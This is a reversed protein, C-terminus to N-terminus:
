SVDVEKVDDKKESVDFHESGVSIADNLPPINNDARADGPLFDEGDLEKLVLDEIDAAVPTSTLAQTPAAITDATKHHTHHEKHETPHAPHKHEAPHAHPKHDTSHKEDKEHHPAPAHAHHPSPHPAPPVAPAPVPAVEVVLHTQESAPQAPVPPQHVVPPHKLLHQQVTAKEQEVAAVMGSVKHASEVSCCISDINESVLFQLMEERQVAHGIISTKVGFKKCRRIVYSLASLVAPNMENYLSQLAPNNRDIALIHQTLDDTDFSMFTIGSTCLDNIIQVSAPTEVMIGLEVSAPMGLSHALEQTQKVEAVSIVHPIMVGIKKHPYHEALEKIALLEAKMIEVHALSFRVGHNGLLPNSEVIQPSGELHASEDSLLDSTRIWMSDFHDAITSLGKSLSKIYENRKGSSIYYLPHRGLTAVLSELRVMGVSKSASKAARATHEPTDIIVKIETKTPVIPTVEVEPAEGKGEYVHGHFGDVTVLQGDVFTSTAHTTGVVSPIGMERSLIASHSTIGGEDSVLAAAKHMSLLVDPHSRSSVLVDGKTANVFEDLNHIIRVAGKGVGSSAGLGSVLPTGLLQKASSSDHKTTLPRSQVISIDTGSIAFEIDQPHKYHEELRQAFTALTRLEYSSLVQRNAREKNLPVVENKGSSNRTVAVKKETVNTHLVKFDELNKDIVYLDPKIMGSVIGKGLGWVSEVVINGSSSTPDRSFMVGSKDANVMKQVIVAMGANLPTLGKKVRYYIACPTFLSSACEKIHDILTSGGKVNLFSEQIGAFSADKLDETTASSRVAVFSGERSNKLIDLAGRKAGELGHTDVSLIDYAELISDKMDQPMEARAFLARINKSVQNLQVTNEVDLTHLLHEIQSKLGTKDLFHTYAQTTIVFGPPIPYQHIFMEGLSAGKGGAIAVDKNSLESFWKVYGEGSNEKKHM